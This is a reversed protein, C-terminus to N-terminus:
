SAERRSVNAPVWHAEILVRGARTERGCRLLNIMDDPRDLDFAFGPAEIIAPEVAAARFAKCHAAFSGVGFRFPQAADTRYGILNTGGDAKAEAIVARGGRALIAVAAGIEGAQLLPLDAPLVIIAEAGSAILTKAAGDLTSNLGNADPLLLAGHREAIGIALEDGTALAVGGLGPTTVVAALVDELMAIILRQRLDPPIAGALRGKGAALDRVPVIVWIGRIRKM